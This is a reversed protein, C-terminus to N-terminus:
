NNKIISNCCFYFRDFAAGSNEKPTRENKTHQKDDRWRMMMLMMVITASNRTQNEHGFSLRLTRMFCACRISFWDLKFLYDVRERKERCRWKVEIVEVLLFFLSSSCSCSRFSLSDEVVWWWVWLCCCHACNYYLAFWIYIHISPFEYM